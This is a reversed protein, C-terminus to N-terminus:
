ARKWRARGVDPIESADSPDVFAYRGEWTKGDGSIKYLLAGSRREEEHGVQTYYAALYTNDIIIGSGRLRRRNTANELYLSVQTHQTEGALPYYSITVTGWDIERGDEGIAFAQYKGVRRLKFRIQLLLWVLAVTMLASFVGAAVNILLEGGATAPANLNLAIQYLGRLPDNLFYASVGIVLLWGVVSNIGFHVYRLRQLFQVLSEFM